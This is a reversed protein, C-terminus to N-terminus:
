PDGQLCGCDPEASPSSQLEVPEQETVPETRILYLEAEGALVVLGFLVVDTWVHTYLCTLVILGVALPRAVYRVAITTAFLFGEAGRKTPVLRVLSTLLGRLVRGGDMPFCPILNFIALLSNIICLALLTRQTGVFRRHFPYGLFQLASWALLAIAANAFPGALATWIERLGRPVDELRAVCGIPLLLVDMTKCGFRRAVVVHAFEHVLLSGFLLILLLALRV